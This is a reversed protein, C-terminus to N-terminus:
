LPNQCQRVLGKSIWTCGHSWIPVNDLRCHLGEMKKWDHWGCRVHFSVLVVVGGNLVQREQCTAVACGALEGRGVVPNSPLITRRHGLNFTVRNLEVDVVLRNVGLMLLCDSKRGRGRRDDFLDLSPIFPIVRGKM